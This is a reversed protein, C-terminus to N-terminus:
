TLKQLHLQQKDVCTQLSHGHSPSNTAHKSHLPLSPHQLPRKKHQQFRTTWCRLFLLLVLLVAVFLGKWKASSFHTTWLNWLNDHKVSIKSLQKGERDWWKQPTYNWFFHNRQSPKYCSRSLGGDLCGGKKCKVCPIKWRPSRSLWFFHLRCVSEGLWILSNNTTPSSSTERLKMRKKKM